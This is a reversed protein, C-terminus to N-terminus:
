FTEITNSSFSECLLVILKKGMNSDGILAANTTSGVSHEKWRGANAVTANRGATGPHDVSRSASTIRVILSSRSSAAVAYSVGCHNAIMGRISGWVKRASVVNGSGSGM